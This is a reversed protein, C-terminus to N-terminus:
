LIKKMCVCVKDGEFQDYNNILNYGSGKYLSIAEPMEAGTELVMYRYGQQKAEVECCKIIESAIHQRRYDKSVFVRKVEATDNNYNKFGGCAIAKHNDYAVFADRIDKLANYQRYKLAM